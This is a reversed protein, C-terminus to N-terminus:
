ALKLGEQQGIKRVGACAMDLVHERRAPRPPSSLGPGARAPGVLGSHDQQSCDCFVQM